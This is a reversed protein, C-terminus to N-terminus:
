KRIELIKLNIIGAPVEVSVVDGVKKGLLAKGIPSEDSIKNNMPDAEASGVITYEVEENYSEDYVKVTCGISVQDLKIDEEDIVKANKLMAELTAIRGEIFAQENKAEDYESNESLDGFARAQKIKEAVEARKVTKLYELEEELKKLGEYTLIVPKSM